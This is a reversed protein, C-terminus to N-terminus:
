LRCTDGSAPNLPLTVNDQAPAGDEDVQATEGAVTPEDEYANVTDTLPVDPTCANGDV